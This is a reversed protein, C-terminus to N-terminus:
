RCVALGRTSDSYGVRDRTLRSLNFGGLAIRYVAFLVPANTGEPPPIPGTTFLVSGDPLAVPEGAGFRLTLWSNVHTELAAFILPALTETIEMDDIAPGAILEEDQEVKNQVFAAGLVFLDNSGLVFWSALRGRSAGVARVVTEVHIPAGM